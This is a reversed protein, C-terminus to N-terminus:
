TVIVPFFFYGVRKARDTDKSGQCLRLPDEHEGGGAAGPSNVQYHKGEEQHSSSLHKNYLTQSSPFYLSFWFHGLGSVVVVM